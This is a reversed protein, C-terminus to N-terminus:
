SARKAPAQNAVLADLWKPPVCAILITMSILYEYSSAYTHSFLTMGAFMYALAVWCLYPRARRILLGGALVFNLITLGWASAHIIASLSPHVVFSDAIGYFQVFSMEIESGDLWEPRCGDVGYWFFVSCQQLVFLELMWWPVREPPPPPTGDRKARRKALVRDVSLSRACPVIALLVALQFERVPYVLKEIGLEVGYYLHLIAFSLAVAIASIRTWLGFVVFWAGILVVWALVLTGLMDDMRHACWPSAFEVYISMAGFIRVFALSRSSVEAGLFEGLFKGLVQALKATPAGQGAQVAWPHGSIGAAIM